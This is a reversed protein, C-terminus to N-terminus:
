RAGWVTQRSHDLRPISLVDCLEDMLSPEGLTLVNILEGVERRFVIWFNRDYDKISPANSLCDALKITHSDIALQGEAMLFRQRTMAKREARNPGGEMYPIDTMLAVLRGVYEGFEQEVESLEIGCDEVVDHLWAAAIAEESLGAARVRSAVEGCHMIYQEGTYKRRQGKHAEMAFLRAAESLYRKM